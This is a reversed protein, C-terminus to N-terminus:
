NRVDSKKLLESEIVSYLKAPQFPKELLTIDEKQIYDELKDTPYGSMFVVPIDNRINKCINALEIGSKGTLVVDTLVLEFAGPENQFTAVAEEASHCSVVKYQKATLVR